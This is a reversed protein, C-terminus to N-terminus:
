NQNMKYFSCLVLVVEERYGDDLVGLTDVLSSAFRDDASFNSGVKGFQSRKEYAGGNSPHNGEAELKKVWDTGCVREKEKGAIMKLIWAM